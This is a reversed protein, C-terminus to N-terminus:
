AYGSHKGASALAIARRRQAIDDPMTPPLPATVSPRGLAYPYPAGRADPLGYAVDMSSTPMPKGTTPSIPPGGAMPGPVRPAAAPAAPQGGGFLGGLNMATYIPARNGVSNPTQYQVTGFRPNAPAGGM